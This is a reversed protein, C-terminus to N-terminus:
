YKCFQSTHTNVFDPFVILSVWRKNTLLNCVTLFAVFNRHRSPLACLYYDCHFIELFSYWNLIKLTM